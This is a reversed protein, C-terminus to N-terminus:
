AQELDVQFRGAALAVGSGAKAVKFALTQGATLDTSCTVTIAYPVGNAMNTSQTTICAYVASSGGAGDAVQLTITAYNAANATVTGRPVYYVTKLRKGSKVRYFYQEAVAAAANTQATGFDYVANAEFIQSLLDEVVVSSTNHVGFLGRFWSRLNNALAM